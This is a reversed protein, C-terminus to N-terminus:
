ECQDGKHEVQPGSVADQPLPSCTEVTQDDEVAEDVHGGAEVGGEDLRRPAHEVRGDGAQDVDEEEVQDVQAVPQHWHKNRANKHKNTQEM